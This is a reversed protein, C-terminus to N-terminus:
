LLHQLRDLVVLTLGVQAGGLGVAVIGLAVGAAGALRRGAPGAARRYGVIGVGIALIGLGIAVYKGVGSVAIAGVGLAALLLALYGV